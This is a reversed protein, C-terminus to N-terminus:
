NGYLMQGKYKLGKLYYVNHTNEAVLFVDKNAVSGTGKKITDNEFLTVDVVYLKNNEDLNEIINNYFDTGLSSASVIQNIIPLRENELYYININDQVRSLSTKYEEFNAAAISGAGIVSASTIIIMMVITATIVVLLTVGSKNTM